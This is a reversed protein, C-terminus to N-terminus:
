HKREIAWWAYAIYALVFPILLSVVAMTKLTFESSCSNELCLSSQVNTLSPYYATHNLGAILLLAWVTAVAGLGAFWIARKSGQTHYLQLVIGVLVLVVGVVFVVLTWPLALFNHVYKFPEVVFCHEEAQYTLGDSMLVYIVFAVFCLVFPVADMMMQKRLRSALLPFCTRNTLYLAGLVRALFFVAFGLLWNWPQALAELGHFPSDWRSIVPSAVMPITNSMAGHDVTFPSGIFFTAVAVGLLFPGVFGNFVLFCRYVTSGFLNSPKGQFEYAVAQLVFSILLLMWVWYAGGFSTSYFLPFSAFFAGGFTVLTTFTLEWKRGTISLIHSREVENHGLCFLLSNAGQVFM